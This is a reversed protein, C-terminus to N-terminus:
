IGGDLYIKAGSIYNSLSFYEIARSIECPDGFKRSPITSRIQTQIKTPISSWLPGEFVGLMLSCTNVNFRGYEKAVAATLQISAQKTSSYISAGSGNAEAVASGFYLIRGYKNKIMGPLVAHLLNLYSLYNVNVSNMVSDRTENVLLRESKFAAVYIIVPFRDNAIRQVLALPVDPVSLDWTIHGEGESQSRSVFVVSDLNRNIFDQIVYSNSGVVYFM